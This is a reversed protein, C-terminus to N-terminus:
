ASTPQRRKVVVTDPEANSPAAHGTDDARKRKGAPAPGFGFLFIDLLFTPSASRVPGEVM